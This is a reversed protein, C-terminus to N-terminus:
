LFCFQETARFYDSTYPSISFSGFFSEVAIVFNEKEQTSILREVRPSIVSKGLADVFGCHGKHIKCNTDCRLLRFFRTATLKKKKKKKKKERFCYFLGSARHLWLLSVIRAGNFFAVAVRDM